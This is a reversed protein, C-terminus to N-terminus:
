GFWRKEELKQQVAQRGPVKELAFQLPLCRGLARM